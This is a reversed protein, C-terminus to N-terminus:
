ENLIGNVFEVWKHKPISGDIYYDPQIGKEDIAMEPIRTSRSLCYGLQFEQCPSMTFMMNSIDLAGFTTTGFLKVKKSQKAALLFQEDASINEHNIIIGINKPYPYITDPKDIHVFISDVNVFEGLKPKLIDYSERAWIKTEEDIGYITDNAIDLMRKNNLETSLFEVSMTRIPNTYLLPIINGYVADSGGTGNRIDLILNKTGTIKKHNSKIISDILIKNQFEFSPIRFYLTTENLQELYPFKSSITKIYNIVSPDDQFSPKERKLKISGFYLQNSGLLETQDHTRGSHDRMYYISSNDEAIKLKVQGPRWYVGDAEIIFGIYEQEVKKIGIKYSGSIWIGEFDINTKSELFKEFEVVNIEFKEWDEFRKLIENEDPKEETQQSQNNNTPIIAIHGSRFFTLWNYLTQTCELPSAIQKAKQYFVENHKEYAKKGKNEIVYLFGADNEEFTKKVWNFNSLCDCDQAIVFLPFILIAIPLIKKM